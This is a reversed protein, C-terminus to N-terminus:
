SYYSSPKVNDGVVSRNGRIFRSLRQIQERRHFAILDPSVPRPVQRVVGWLYGAALALGGTLVPPETMQRATRFLEWMPHNGISYDKMGLKFRSKLLSRGATGMTRHHLCSKETFTRTKWGKMRATIVAIHDISGGKVPMYGGVAEFCERRFMQCAGSVHEISVFRYDYTQGSVERFPTGVLGLMPDASLKGLLLSFYDAEFSIDADLSVIVQYDLDGVRAYGANFAHVKGAFDRERREPMRVLEIWPHDSAWKKVIEDTGDTSGDSVIVWRLPRATQAAVSKITLEIFQAENRAPTILVYSPLHDRM